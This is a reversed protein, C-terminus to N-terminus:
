FIEHGDTFASLAGDRDAGPALNQLWETAGNPDYNGWQRAVDRLAQERTRGEPFRSAWDAASGPDAGAWQSLVEQERADALAMVDPWRATFALFYDKVAQVTTQQLMIESLWVRYPDLREGARARWPLVRAHRGYWHLLEARTDQM